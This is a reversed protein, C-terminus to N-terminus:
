PVELFRSELRDDGLSTIPSGTRFLVHSAPLVPNGSVARPFSLAHFILNKSTGM